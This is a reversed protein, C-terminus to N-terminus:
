ILRKGLSNRLRELLGVMDSHLQEFVVIVDGKILQGSRPDSLEVERDREGGIHFKRGIHSRHTAHDRLEKILSLWGKADQELNELQDLEPCSKGMKKLESRLKRKTVQKLQLNCGYAVNLEQLFGDVAGYLHFLFSEQHAREFTDGSGRKSYTQLEELHINAYELKATIRAVSSKLKDM